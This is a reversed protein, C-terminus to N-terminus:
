RLDKTRIVFKMFDRTLEFVFDIENENVICDHKVYNNQYKTYFDLISRFMNRLETAIGADKLMGCVNTTQNELSKDNIFIDKLLLEFSLRLDDLMNRQNSHADYKMLANKYQEYSRPYKELWSCTTQLEKKTTSASYLNGYRGIITEKFTLVKENVSITPHDCLDLLIFYQQEAAFADLNAKLVTRKSAQKRFPWKSYPIVVNYKMAFGNFIDKIETGKLGENTDGFIDAARNLMPIDLSDAKQNQKKQKKAQRIEYFYLKCKPSLIIESPEDDAWYAKLFGQNELAELLAYQITKDQHNMSKIHQLYLSIAQESKVLGKLLSEAHLSLKETM